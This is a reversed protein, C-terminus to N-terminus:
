KQTLTLVGYVIAAACGALGALALVAYAITGMRGGAGRESMRTGGLVTLAFLTCVGVSAVLAVLVVEGLESFNVATGLLM